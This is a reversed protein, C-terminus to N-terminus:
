NANICYMTIETRKEDGTVGEVKLTKNGWIIQVANFAAMKYRISIKFGETTIEKGLALLQNGKMQQVRAWTAVKLGEGTSRLGGSETQEVAGPFVLQIQERFQGARVAM